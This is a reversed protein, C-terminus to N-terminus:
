AMAPVLGFDVPSVWFLKLRERKTHKGQLVGPLVDTSTIVLYACKFLRVLRIKWATFSKNISSRLHFHTCECRLKMLAGPDGGAQKHKIGFSEVWPKYEEHTVITVTHGEKMLGLGLAIYPQVDGRSGITLCVFHKTDRRGLVERPLNIAKPLKALMRPSAGVAIAAALSRELPSFIGTASRTLPAVSTPTNFGSTASPTRPERALKIAANVRTIAEECLQNTKFHFRLDPHGEIELALGFACARFISFPKAQRITSVPLRYRLDDQTLFRSWFSIYNSSVVFFGTSAITRYVRAKVVLFLMLINSLCKSFSSVSEVPRAGRRVGIAM